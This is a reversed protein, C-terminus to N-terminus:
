NLSLIVRVEKLSRVWVTISAIENRARTEQIERIISNVRSALMRDFQRLAASNTRIESSNYHLSRGLYQAFRYRQVDSRLNKERELWERYLDDWGVVAANMMAELCSLNEMGHIQAIAENVSLILWNKAADSFQNQLVDFLKLATRSTSSLIKSILLASMKKKNKNPNMIM